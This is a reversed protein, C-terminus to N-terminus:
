RSIVITSAEKERLAISHGNVKIYHAGGFPSKRVYTIRTNPLLGLTLLRSAMEMDIFDIIRGSEGKRLDLISM